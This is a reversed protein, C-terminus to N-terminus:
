YETVLRNVDDWSQLSYRTMSLKLVELAPYALHLTREGDRHVLFRVQVKIPDGTKALAQRRQMQQRVAQVLPNYAPSHNLSEVAIQKRTPHVIVVDSKCEIFVISEGEGGIRAPRLARPKRSGDDPDTSGPGVSGKDSTSGPGAKAAAPGPTTASAVPSGGNNGPLLTPIEIQNTGGTRSANGSPPTNASGVPPLVRGGDAPPRSPSGKGSGVEPATLSALPLLRPSGSQPNGLVSDASRADEGGQRSAGPLAGGGAAVGSDNSGTMGSVPGNGRNDESSVWPQSRPIISSDDTGQGRFGAGQGRDAQATSNGVLSTGPVRPGNGRPPRPASDVLPPKSGMWPQLPTEGEPFHLVWDAEVFEYGFDIGLDRAAAQAEYSRAIGTEDPRILIMVYPKESVGAARLQQKQADMRALLEARLDDARGLTKRDPHFVIGQPGCELYVPRREEGRKGHYPVVSYAQADKKRKEIAEALQKELRALEAGLRARARDGATLKKAAGEADKREAALAREQWALLSKERELHQRLDDLSSHDENLKRAAAALRAQVRALEESLAAEEAAVRALLAGRKKEWAEKNARQKGDHALRGQEILRDYESQRARIIDNVKEQERSLAALRSKRDMCLLVLILAGMACLLVALFPFTSVQLHQRRRRM